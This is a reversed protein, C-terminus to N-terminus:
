DTKKGRDAREQKIDGLDRYGMNRYAQKFRERWMAHAKESREQRAEWDAKGVLGDLWWGVACTIPLVLWFNIGAVDLLMQNMAFVASIALWFRWSAFPSQSFHWWLWRM